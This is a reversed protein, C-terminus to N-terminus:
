CGGNKCLICSESRMSKHTIFIFFGIIRQARLVNLDRSCLVFHLLLSFMHFTQILICSQIIILCPRRMQQSIWSTRLPKHAKKKITSKPHQNAPCVLVSCDRVQLGPLGQLVDEISRAGCEGLKMHHGYHQQYRSMVMGLSLQQDECTNLLDRLERSLNQMLLQKEPKFPKDSIHACFLMMFLFLTTFHSTMQSTHVFCRWSCSYHCHSTMQSTHVFCRWSCSYHCHSTM